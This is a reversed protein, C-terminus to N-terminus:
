KKRSFRKSFNGVFNSSMFPSQAFYKQLKEANPLVKDGGIERAFILLEARIKSLKEDDIILLEEHPSSHSDILFSPHIIIPIVNCTQDYHERFWILSGNLQDIDSEAVFNSTAGNKCELILFRLSGLSWLVDPGRGTENEPRQSELGLLKGLQEVAKEFRKFDDEYFNLDDILGHIWLVAENSSKFRKKIFSEARIGQNISGFALKQYAIGELPKLLARNLTCASLQIEQAKTRDYHHTYEALQQKYWGQLKPNTELNVAEQLKEAAKHFQNSQAYSYAERQIRAFDTISSKSQYTINVLAQKSAKLWDPHRKLCYEIVPTLDSLYKGRIQMALNESLKLQASTAPSFKSFAETSYIAQTLKSGMLLVVCFDDNARVGRGMGQEIKQMQRALIEDGDNSVAQEYKDILRRVEPLGDLILIHCASYPLDIGDYKNSLVTLGSKQAKLKSIGEQINKKDLFLTAVPRWFKSRADSPVIVVVNLSKSCEEAFARIEEDTTEPNLEQPTLIMRDGLDSASKPTLPLKVSRPDADFDTVLISDDALTATMYIRRMAYIFSPIAEIPLCRSSVELAGGSIVCQCLKLNDQLLPWIFKLTDEERYPHICEIVESIKDIWSWYPILMLRRSDGNKIDLLGTPSQKLIEGSFLKFLSSFCPHNAEIRLTFQQEAAALCAHADDIVLSGIKIKIGESSVGFQSMGNFLTHVPIVLIAAGRKFQISKPDNVTEIGLQKAQESVQESLFWDPCVYVAPGKGENLCAKLILLGVVTKGGGTNMKIVLDKDDRRNFWLDLVDSQVDRLYSYKSAKNPLASFLKRPDNITDISDGSILKDFNIEM